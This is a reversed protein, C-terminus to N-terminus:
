SFIKKKFENKNKYMESDIIRIIEEMLMRRSPEKEFLGVSITVRYPLTESLKKLSYNIRDIIDQAQEYTCGTFAIIFEDGGVRCIIDSVRLNNKIISATKIISRDGEQHGYKDNIEKLNDMDMFGFTICVNDEACKKMLEKMYKIGSNKSMTGTMPDIEVQRKMEELSKKQFLYEKFMIVFTLVGSLLIGLFIFGFTAYEGSIEEPFHFLMTLFSILMIVSYLMLIFTAEYKFHIDRDIYIDRFFRNILDTLLGLLALMIVFYSIESVFPKDLLQPLGQLSSMLHLTIFDAMTIISLAIFGTIASVFVSVRYEKKIMLISASLIIPFAIYEPMGSLLFMFLTFLVVLDILSSISRSKQYNIQKEISYIFLVSYFLCKLLVLPM